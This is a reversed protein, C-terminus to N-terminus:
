AACKTVELSNLVNVYKAAIKAMDYKSKVVELANAAMRKREQKDKYLRKLQRYFDIPKPALLGTKGHEIDKYPELESAIVPIGLATAELWKINSKGRNFQSDALPALIVDVKKNALWEPYDQIECPGWMEVRESKILSEFYEPIVRRFKSGYFSGTHGEPLRLFFNSVLISDPHEDLFRKISDVAERWDKVHTNSGFLGIRFKDTDNEKGKWLEFDVGNPIVEIRKAHKRYVDALYETTTTMVSAASLEDLVNDIPRNGPLSVFPRNNQMVIEGGNQRILELKAPPFNEVKYEELQDMEPQWSAFNPNDPTMNVIDDDMDVIMPKVQAQACIRAANYWASNTTTSIVDYNDVIRQHQAMTFDYKGDLGDVHVGLKRLAKTMQWVRYFSVGNNGGDYAFLKM